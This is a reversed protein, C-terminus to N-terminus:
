QEELIFEIADPNLDYDTLWDPKKTLRLTIKGEERHAEFERFPILIDLRDECLEKFHSLPVNCVAEATNPFMRLAYGAPVSDCRIHLTLRKETFEEVPVTVKAPTITVRDSLQFGVETEVTLDAEVAIERNGLETYTVRITSPEFSLLRTSSALHKLIGAELIRRTVTLEESSAERPLTRVDIELPSFSGTWLYNLLVTGKDRVKAVVETPSDAAPVMNAPINKYRVPLAINIEYDDQLAQLFWLCLSALVFCMFVLVDRWGIRRFFAKVRSAKTPLPSANGHESM